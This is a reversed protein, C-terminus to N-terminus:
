QSREMSDNGMVGNRASCNRSVAALAGLLADVPLVVCRHRSRSNHVPVFMELDSFGDQSPLEGTDLLEEIVGKAAALEKHGWGSAHEALWVASAECLACGRVRFGIERLRVPAASAAAPDPDATSDSIAVDMAVEDGCLPNDVTCTGAPESLRPFKAARRSGAVIQQQYIANSM